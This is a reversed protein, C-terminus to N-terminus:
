HIGLKLGCLNIVDKNFTNINKFSSHSVLFVLLDSKEVVQDIQYLRFDSYNSINPESVFVQHGNEILKTTIFLAPSERLDDIDPKFSLGFCGINIRRKYKKELIEIRKEIIQIIWNTKEQNVKRATQILASNSPDAYAIFWPDIAICHGGVGCGPKLINVRPHKNALDILENPNISFNECIMSLENAYAINIDRYANESLKVLEATASDTLYLDGDCFTEYFMKSALSSEENIGGIVRDNVIIEKLIKGPLVREPCYAIKFEDQNYNTLKKIFQSLKKTTGVPSTSEIIILNGKQLVKCIAEAASFLFKLNPEPIKSHTKNFPTPVAIIFVDAECPIERAMLNGKSVVKKLLADLDPEKIYVLGKNIKEVKEKEIDVGVVEHGVNAIVTATPLGIYGMGIVCCKSM